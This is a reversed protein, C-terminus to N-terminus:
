QSDFRIITLALPLHHCHCPLCAIGFFLSVWIV